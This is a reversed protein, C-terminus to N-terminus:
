RWRGGHYRWERGHREWRPSVWVAHARPPRLWRGERWAWRDGDRDWYGQTWVYGPGPAVGIVRYRPAPPGYAAYGSYYGGRAACGTLLAGAIVFGAALLKQRM